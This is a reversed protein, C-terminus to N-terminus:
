LDPCNLTSKERGLMATKNTKPQSMLKWGEEVLRQGGNLPPSVSKFSQSLKDELEGWCTNTDAMLM